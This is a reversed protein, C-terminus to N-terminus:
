DTSAEKTSADMAPECVQCNVKDSVGSPPCCASQTCNAPLTCVLNERCEDHLRLPNCHAGEGPAQLDSCSVILVALVSLVFAIGRM